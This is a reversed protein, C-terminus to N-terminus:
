AVDPGVVFAGVRVFNILDLLRLKDRGCFSGYPYEVDYNEYWDAEEPVQEAALELSEALERAEAASFGRLAGDGQYGHERALDLAAHWKSM